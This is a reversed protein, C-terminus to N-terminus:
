GERNNDEANERLLTLRFDICPWCESLVVWSGDNCSLEDLNPAVLSVVVRADTVQAHLTDLIAVTAADDPYDDRYEVPRIFSLVNASGSSARCEFLMPEEADVDDASYVTSREPTQDFARVYATTVKEPQRAM